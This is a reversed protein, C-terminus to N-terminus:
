HLGRGTHQRLWACHLLAQPMAVGFAPLLWTGQCLAPAKAFLLQTGRSVMLTFPLSRSPCNGDEASVGSTHCLMPCSPFPFPACLAQRVGLALLAQAGLLPSGLALPLRAPRLIHWSQGPCLLVPSPHQSGGPSWGMGSAGSVGASGKTGVQEKGAWPQGGHSSAQVLRITNTGLSHGHRPRGERDTARRYLNLMYRLPQRSAPGTPWDQSAPARVQLAQLLPLPPVAPLSSPPLLSQNAAWSLSLTFLLLLSTFPQLLAM